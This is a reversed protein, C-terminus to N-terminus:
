TEERVVGRRLACRTLGPATHIDLKKMLNARHTEATRTKIGMHEAIQRNSHGEAVLQLVERERRSLTDYRDLDPAEDALRVYADIVARTVPISLFAEGRAVARIASVLESPADLKTVFGSAGARLLQLVSEEYTLVSVILVKVEPSQHKIQRTAELGNLHPMAADMMVVDPKLRETLLVAEHGDDAEGVVEIGPEHELLSRLGKRVLLHDDAMLVRIEPM